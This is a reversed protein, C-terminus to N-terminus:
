LIGDGNLKKMTFVNINNTFNVGMAVPFWSVLWDADDPVRMEANLTPDLRFKENVFKRGDASKHLFLIKNDFIHVYRNQM